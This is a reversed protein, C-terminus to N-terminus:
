LLQYTIVVNSAGKNINTIRTKRPADLLYYQATGSLPITLTGGTVKQGIVASGCDSNFQDVVNLVNAAGTALAYPGAAAASSKCVVPYYAKVVGAPDASDNILVESSDNLDVSWLHLAASGGTEEWLCSFPYLGDAQVVFEFTTNATSGSAEWLANASALNVGSYAGARDDTNIHFRHLGATLHLYACSEVAINIPAANNGPCLGPVNAPYASNKNWDLVQVISTARQDVPITGALQQRARALSNELNVGGNTTQAMRVDFGRATLSGIPLSNSAFLHPYAVTWTWTNTRWVEASDKFAFINTHKSGWTLLNTIPYTVTAGGFLNPYSRNGPKSVGSWDINWDIGISAQPLWVGDLCLAISANDYTVSTDRNLIMVTNTAYITTCKGGPPPYVDTVMAPMANAAPESAFYNDFTASAGYTAPYDENFILFGSSGGIGYWATDQGIASCWPTNPELLNYATMVFTQGDHSSVEMRIRDTSNLTLDGDKNLAAFYYAQGETYVMSLYINAANPSWTGVYGLTTGLGISHMYWMLGFTPRGTTSWSLLDSAVSFRSTYTPTPLYSGGRANKVGYPDTGTAAVEIHYAKGTSDDNPFTYSTGGYPIGFATLSYHSWGTDNGDNFNDSQAALPPAAAGLLIIALASALGARALSLSSRFTASSNKM